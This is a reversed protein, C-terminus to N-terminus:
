NGRELNYQKYKVKGLMETNYDCEYCTKLKSLLTDFQYYKADVKEDELLIVSSPMSLNNSHLYAKEGVLRLDGGDKTIYKVLYAGVNDVHDIKNLFIFGMGWTSELLKFDVYAIDILMHYHVAGRDNSDQFEVVALYKFDNGLKYRLRQIFKKFVYNCDKPSRIDHSVKKDDFTLTVFLSHKDFNATALRRISNLRVQNHNKYNRDIGNNLEELLTIKDKRDRKGGKGATYKEMEYVEIVNNTIIYKTFM